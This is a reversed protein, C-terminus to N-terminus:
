DEREETLLISSVQIPILFTLLCHLVFSLGAFMVQFCSGEDQIVFIILVLCIVCVSLFDFAPLLVTVRCEDSSFCALSTLFNCRMIFSKLWVDM